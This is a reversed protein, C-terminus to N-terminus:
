VYYVGLISRDVELKLCSHTLTPNTNNLFLIAWNDVSAKIPPFAKLLKYYLHDITIYVTAFILFADNKFICQYPTSYKILHAQLTIKLMDLHLLIPPPLHYPWKEFTTSGDSLGLIHFVIGFNHREHVHQLHVSPLLCVEFQVGSSIPRNLTPWSRKLSDHDKKWFIKKAHMWSASAEVWFRFLM